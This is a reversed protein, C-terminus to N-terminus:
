DHIPACFRLPLVPVGNLIASDLNFTDLGV